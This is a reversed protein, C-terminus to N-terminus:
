QGTAADRAVLLPQWRWSRGKDFGAATARPPASLVQAADPAVGDWRAPSVLAAEPPTALRLSTGHLPSFKYAPAVTELAPVDPAREPAVAEAARETGVGALWYEHAGGVPGTHTFALGAKFRVANQPRFGEREREASVGWGHFDAPTLAYRRWKETLPVVAM